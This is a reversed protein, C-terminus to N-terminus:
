KQVVTNSSCKAFVVTMQADFRNLWTGFNSFEAFSNYHDDTYFIVPSLDYGQNKLGNKVFVIRGTGRNSASYKIETSISIDLEYYILYGFNRNYPIATMYGDTRSYEFFCRTDDKFYEYADAYDERAVYNVPFTGFAISYYAIDVPDTLSVTKAISPNQIVEDMTHYTYTKYSLVEYGDDTVAINFPVTVTVGPVLNGEYVVPNIRYNDYVTSASQKVTNGTYRIVIKKVSVSSNGSEVSFFNTETTNVTQTVFKNDTKPLYCTSTKEGNDGYRIYAQEDSKYTIEISVIDKIRSTNYISGPLAVMYEKINPNLLVIAKNVSDKVTRYYGFEVSYIKGEGYNGTSYGMSFSDFSDYDLTITYAKQQGSPSNSETSDPPLFSISCSTASVAIFLISLILAVIRTKNNM